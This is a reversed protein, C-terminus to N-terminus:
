DPSLIIIERTFTQAKHSVRLFYIGPQVDEGWDLRLGQSEKTIRISYAINNGALDFVSVNDVDGLGSIRVYSTSPNPYLNAESFDHKQYRLNIIDSYKFKGDFDTQKLRYYSTGNLPKQDVFTYKLLSNSDGAGKVTGIGEWTSTNESRELTFFDNTIESATSWLLYVYNGKQEVDFGILEVPLIVDSRALTFRLGDALDVVGAFQFVNSGLDTAGSIPTEDNFLGDNDTDVLIRLETATFTGLGTLDWQLDVTGVDGVESTMWVRAFRSLAASPVDSTENFLLPESDCGFFLYENDGLDSPNRVTVIGTGRSDDHINGNDIRGIGAVDFDYGSDDGSYLDNASMALGYKAALYNEIIVLQVDNLSAGFFIVEAIDGNFYFNSLSASANAISLDNMFDGSHDSTFSSALAGNVRVETGDVADEVIVVSTLVPSGTPFLGSIESSGYPLTPQYGPGVFNDTTPSFNTNDTQYRGEFGTNYAGWVSGSYAVAPVYVAIATLDPYSGEQIDWDTQIYEGAGDFRMVSLSNLVSAEITPTLVITNTRGNGSLDQLATIENFGNVTAERNADIWYDLTSLGDNTGIGGPGTQAFAIQVLMIMAVPAGLLYFNKKM